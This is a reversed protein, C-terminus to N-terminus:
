ASQKSRRELSRIVEAFEEQHVPKGLVGNIRHRRTTLDTASDAPNDTILYVLAKPLVHRIDRVLHSATTRPMSIDAFICELQPHLRVQALLDEGDKAQLVKYGYRQLKAVLVQRAFDNDDAVMLLRGPTAAITDEAKAKPFILIFETGEAESSTFRLDGGHAKMIGYSLALGLGTGEGVPKTTFFPSMVRDRIEEPIPPGNNHVKLRVGGTPPTEASLRIVRSGPNKRLAHVANNLLNMIIQEIQNPDCHVPLAEPLNWEVKIGFDDLRHHMFNVADMAVDRADVQSIRFDDQRVMRMMRSIIKAMRDTAKLIPTLQLNLENKCLEGQALLLSINEAFGQIVTLPNNLEHAVGAVLQGIDALKSIRMVEKFASERETALRKQETLDSLSLLIIKKESVQITSATVKAPVRRGSHRLVYMETEEVVSKGGPQRLIAGISQVRREESKHFLRRLTLKAITAQTHGLLDLAAENAFCLPITTGRLEFALIPVHVADFLRFLREPRPGGAKLKQIKTSHAVHASRFKFGAVRTPFNSAQAKPRMSGLQRVSSALGQRARTSPTIRKESESTSDVSQVGPGLPM